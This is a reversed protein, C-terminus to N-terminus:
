HNQFKYIKATNGKCLVEFSMLIKSNVVTINNCKLRTQIRAQASITDAPLSSYIKSFTDTNRGMTEWISDM